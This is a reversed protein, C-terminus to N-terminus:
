FWEEIRWYILHNVVFALALVIFVMSFGHRLWFPPKVGYSVGGLLFNDDCYGYDCVGAPVESLRVCGVEWLNNQCVYFPNVCVAESEPCSVYVYNFPHSGGNHIELLFLFSFFVIILLFAFRFVWKNFYNPFRESLDFKNKM